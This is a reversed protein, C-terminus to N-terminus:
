PLAPVSGATLVGSRTFAGLSGLNDWLDADGDFYLAPQVGTPIQGQAGLDVPARGASIFKRRVNVDALDLAAGLGLWLHGLEADAFTSLSSNAGVTINSLAGDLNIAAADMNIAPALAVDDVWIQYRGTGASGNGEAASFLIHHWQDLVFANVPSTFNAVGGVAFTMRGSSALYLQLATGAAAQVDILRYAPTAWTAQKNRFWCSLTFAGSGNGLGTAKRLYQAGSFRASRAAFTVPATVAVTQVPSLSQVEWTGAALGAPATWPLTQDGTETWAPDGQKRYRLLTM